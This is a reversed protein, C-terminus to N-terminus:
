SPIDYYIMNVCKTIEANILDTNGKHNHEGFKLVFHMGDDITLSGNCLGKHVYVWLIYINVNKQKYYRKYLRRASIEKQKKKHNVSEYNM